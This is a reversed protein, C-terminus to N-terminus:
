VIWKEMAFYCLGSGVIFLLVSMSMVFEGSLLFPTDKLIAVLRMPLRFLPVVFIDFLLPFIFALGVMLQVINKHTRQMHM